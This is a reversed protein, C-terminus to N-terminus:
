TFLFKKLWVLAQEKTTFDGSIQALYAKELINSFDKSPKIGLNLIDKGQLLAKAKTNLVGLENARTKLRLINNLIIQSTTIAKSFYIFEELNIKTALLYIDYDTFNIFNLSNQYEIIKLVKNILGRNTTLKLLLNECNKITLKHCLVSLMLITNRAENSTLLFSMKDISKLTTNYDNIGLDKFEVFFNFAGLKKLLEIGSSPSSSKLLLKQIELFIREKPLENLLNNAVMKKCINLLKDDISLNFRSSFQVARLIRLPDDTFKDINIARLIKNQLDDIGKFPDLIKKNKIDFAIANITFDRRSTATKFDLSSDLEIEFGKHGKSIKSDKRPFSFDLDLDDFKLKCVGFSKGFSNVSGFEKLINELKSFSKIGYLEIDIDKSEKKLLFDRVFGGIIIPKISNNLLKDFIIDLKSPYDIM